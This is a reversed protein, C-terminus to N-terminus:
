TVYSILFSADDDPQLTFDTLDAPILVSDGYRLTETGDEWTLACAGAVCNLLHFRDDRLHFTHEGALSYKEVTFYECTTLVSRRNGNLREARETEPRAYYDSWHIVALAKEVHLERPKGDLGVRGWDYLRYTTDSNEQIELVLLGPLLTHIRGAPILITEGTKVPLHHLLATPDGAALARIFEDKTVGERLGAIIAAGPDAHLVYWMETKGREGEHALAYADDPHVQVSLRDNADLYKVLLPFTDGFRARVYAGLLGDPDRRLLDHLSTGRLPGNIVISEGHPHDSIEWSEGIPQGPPLPRDMLTELRRDGWVKKFYVPSFQLPYLM